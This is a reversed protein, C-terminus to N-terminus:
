KKLPSCTQLTAHLLTVHQPGDSSHRAWDKVVLAKTLSQCSTCEFTFLFRHSRQAVFFFYKKLDIYAPTPGYDANTASDSVRTLPPTSTAIVRAYRRVCSQTSLMLSVALILRRGTRAVSEHSWSPRAQSSQTGPVMVKPRRAVSGNARAAVSWRHFYCFGSHFAALKLPTEEVTM